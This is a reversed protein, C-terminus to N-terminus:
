NGARYAGQILDMIVDYNVDKKCIRDEVFSL